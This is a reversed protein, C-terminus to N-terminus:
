VRTEENLLELRRLIERDTVMFLKAEPDSATHSVWNGHPLTFVDNKEWNVTKEGVRSSGAGGVLVFRLAHISHRHPPAHEGPALIQLNLTFHDSLGLTKDHNSPRNMCLVRRTAGEEHTTANISTDLIPRM